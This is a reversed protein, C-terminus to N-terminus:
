WVLKMPFFNKKSLFLKYRYFFSLMWDNVDLFYLICITLRNKKPFDIIKQTSHLIYIKDWGWMSKRIKSEQRFSISAMIVISTFQSILGSKQDSCVKLCSIENRYAWYGGRVWCFSCWFFCKFVCVEWAFWLMAMIEFIRLGSPSIVRGRFSINKKLRKV